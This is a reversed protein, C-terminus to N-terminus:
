GARGFGVSKRTFTHPQVFRKCLCRGYAGICNERPGCGYQGNHWGGGARHHDSISHGCDLCESASIIEKVSHM